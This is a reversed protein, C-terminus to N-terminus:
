LLSIGSVGVIIMVVAFSRQTISSRDLPEDLVRIYNLSLIAGFIVAFLPRTSMIATALAVPSNDIAITTFWLAAFALIAESFIVISLGKLNKVFLLSEKITDRTIPLLM